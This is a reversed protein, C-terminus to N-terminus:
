TGASSPTGNSNGEASAAYQGLMSLREITSVVTAIKSGGIKMVRDIDAPQLLPLRADRPSEPDLVGHLLLRRQYSRVDYRRPEGEPALVIAAQDAAIDARVDGSVEGLLLKGLGPVDVIEESLHGAAALWDERSAFPSAVDAEIPEPATVKPKTVTESSSM